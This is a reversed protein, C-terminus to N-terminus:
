AAPPKNSILVKDVERNELIATCKEQNGDKDKPGVLNVGQRRIVSIWMTKAEGEPILPISEGDVQAYFREKPITIVRGDDGADTYKHELHPKMPGFEDPKTPSIVVVIISNQNDTGHINLKMGNLMSISAQVGPTSGDILASDTHSVDDPVVLPSEGMAGFATTRAHWNPIHITYGGIFGDDPVPMDAVPGSYLVNAGQHDPTFYYVKLKDKIEAVRIKKEEESLGSDAIIKEITSEASTRTTVTRTTEEEGEAAPQRKAMKEALSKLSLRQGASLSRSTMLHVAIQNTGANVMTKDGLIEKYSEQSYQYNAPNDNLPESYFEIRGGFKGIQEDRIKAAGLIANCTIGENDLKLVAGPEAYSFVVGQEGKDPDRIVDACSMTLVACAALVGPIIRRLPRLNNNKLANM